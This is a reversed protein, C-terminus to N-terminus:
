KGEWSKRWNSVEEKTIVTIGDCYLCSTEGEKVHTLPFRKGCKACDIYFPCDLNEPFVAFCNAVGMPKQMCAVFKIFEDKTDSDVAVLNSFGGISFVANVGLGDPYYLKISVPFLIGKESRYFLGKSM